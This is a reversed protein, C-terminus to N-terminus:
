KEYYSIDICATVFLIPFTCSFIPMNYFVRYLALHSINQTKYGQGDSGILLSKLLMSSWLLTEFALRVYGIFWGHAIHTRVMILSIVILSLVLLGITAIVAIAWPPFRAERGTPSSSRKQSVGQKDSINENFSVCVLFIILLGAEQKALPLTHCKTKPREDLPIKTIIKTIPCVYLFVVQSHSKTDSRM